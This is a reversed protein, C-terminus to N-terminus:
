GAAVSYLDPDYGCGAAELKHVLEQGSPGDLAVLPARVHRWEDDKQGDAIVYKVAPVLPSYVELAERVFRVQRMRAEAKARDGTVFADFVERSTASNINAAASITGAGGAELVPLLEKDSGAFVALEPFSRILDLLHALSASSDKIGKITAPYARLLREIVAKTIPTGTIQPHHYLFLELRDDALADLVEAYARYLGEDLVRRFFFPPLMALRRCGLGLAHRALAVTDARACTGVGVMLFEAPIGAGVLAELAAQREAVSFSAAEGTVAFVGLGHCGHRLLWQAHRAFREVSITGSYDVPTVIAAHIGSVQNKSM